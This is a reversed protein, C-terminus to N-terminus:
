FFFQRNFASNNHSIHKLMLLSVVQIGTASGRQETHACRLSTELCGSFLPLTQPQPPKTAGWAAMLGAGGGPEYSDPQFISCHLPKLLWDSAVSFFVGWLSPATSLQPESFITSFSLLFSFSFLRSAGTGGVDLWKIKQNRYMTKWGNPM